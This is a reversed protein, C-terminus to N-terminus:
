KKASNVSLRASALCSVAQAFAIAPTKPRITMKNLSIASFVLLMESFQKARRLNEEFPDKELDLLLEAFSLTGEHKLNKELLEPKDKSLKSKKLLFAAGIGSSLGLSLSVVKLLPQRLSSLGKNALALCSIASAYHSPLSEEIIERYRKERKEQVLKNVLDIDKRQGSLSNLRGKELLVKMKKSKLFFPM